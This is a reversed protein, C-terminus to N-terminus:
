IRVYETVHSAPIFDAVAPEEEIIEGLSVQGLPAGGLIFDGDM